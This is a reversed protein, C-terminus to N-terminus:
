SSSTYSELKGIPQNCNYCLLNGAQHDHCEPCIAGTPTQDFSEGFNSTRGCKECTQM